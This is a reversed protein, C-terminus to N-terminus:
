VVVMWRGFLGNSCAVNNSKRDRGGGKSKLLINM